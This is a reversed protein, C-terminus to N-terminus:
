GAHRKPKPPFPSPINRAKSRAEMAELEEPPMTKVVGERGETLRIFRRRDIPRCEQSKVIRAHWLLLDAVQLPVRKKDGQIFKGLLRILDARGRTRLADPMTDYFEQMKNTVGQKKEILFDVQEAEPHKASVYDFAGHVFGIFGMYDPEFQYIGPQTTPRIIKSSKFVERFHGGDLHTLAPALSRIKRVVTIAKDIRAAAQKKTLGHKARGQRSLLEATHFYPLVPRGNLVREEWLPAVQEEWHRFPAVWGGFLFMGTQDGRETEDGAATFILAMRKEKRPLGCFLSGFREASLGKPHPRYVVRFM